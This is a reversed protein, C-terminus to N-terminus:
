IVSLASLKRKKCTEVVSLVRSRFQDGRESSTGYSIKRLIVSGRICREAENNTLPIDPSSLFVWLSPEHKLIFKCRGVYRKCPTRMGKQLLLNINRIISGIIVLVIPSSKIASHLAQHLPTLMNSVRGQAESIAGTSFTTGFQSKLLSQVKRISLHYQGTLVSIYSLLNPGMQSASATVPLKDKSVSGCGTCKGHYIQYDTIDLDQRPLEFM